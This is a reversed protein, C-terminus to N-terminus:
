YTCGNNVNAGKKLLYRVVDTRNFTAARRLATNNCWDLIDVPMGADVMDVVKSVNGDKPQM